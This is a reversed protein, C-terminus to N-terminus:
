RMRIGRQAGGLDLRTPFLSSVNIYFTCVDGDDGYGYNHCYGDCFTGGGCNRTDCGPYQCDANSSCSYSAAVPAVLHLALLLLLLVAVRAAKWARLVDVRREGISLSASPAGGPLLIEAAKGHAAVSPQAGRKGGMGGVQNRVISIRYNSAIHVVLASFLNLIKQTM